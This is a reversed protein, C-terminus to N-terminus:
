YPTSIAQLDRSATDPAESTTSILGVLVGNVDSVAGGSSGQQAVVSGGISFLDATNTNDEFPYLNGVRAYASASYLNTAVTIGGLFGAPYGTLLVDQGTNPPNTAIPLFPFRAPMAINQNVTGTIRLFAYDHEGNGQPKEQNIKYANDAIWSPSIFLLEATYKPTAPSGTRIICQVFDPSPYDKLLFFQGVHANTLIIGRSDIIVGSASISNLPGGSLTACLINITSARVTDNLSLPSSTANTAATITQTISDVINQIPQTPSQGPTPKKPPIPKPITTTKKPTSTAVALQPKEGILATTTPTASHEVPAPATSTLSAENSFVFGMVLALALGAIATLLTKILVPM